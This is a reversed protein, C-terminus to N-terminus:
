LRCTPHNTQAYQHGNNNNNNNNNLANIYRLNALAVFACFRGLRDPHRKPVSVLPRLISGHLLLFHVDAGGPSYSPIIQTAIALRAVAM